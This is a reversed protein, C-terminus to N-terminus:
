EFAALAVLRELFLQCPFFAAKKIHVSGTAKGSLNSRKRGSRLLLFTFNSIGIRRSLQNGSDEHFQLCLHLSPFYYNPVFSYSPCFTALLVPWQCIKNGAAACTKQRPQYYLPKPLSFLSFSFTGVSGTRQPTITHVTRSGSMPTSGCGSMPPTGCGSIFNHEFAHWM